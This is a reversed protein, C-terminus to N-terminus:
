NDEEEDFQLDEQDGGKADEDKLAKEGYDEKDNSGIGYAAKKLKYIGGKSKICDEIAKLSTEVVEFAKKKNLQAITSVVFLPPTILNVTLKMEPTSQAEGARLAEKIADIGEKTFCNIEFYAAIKTAQPTLRRGIEEILKAKVSESINLGQFAKDFDSLLTL